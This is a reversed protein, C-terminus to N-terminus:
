EYKFTWISIVRMQTLLQFRKVAALSYVFCFFHLYSPNKKLISKYRKMHFLFCPLLYKNRNGWLSPNEGTISLLHTYYLYAYLILIFAIVTRLGVQANIQLMVRSNQYYLRFFDLWIINTLLFFIKLLNM